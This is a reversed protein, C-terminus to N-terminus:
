RREAMSAQSAACSSGAMGTFALARRHVPCNFVGGPQGLTKGLGARDNGINRMVGVMQDLHGALDEHLMARGPGLALVCAKQQQDEIRLVRMTGPATIIVIMIM